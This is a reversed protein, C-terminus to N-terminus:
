RTYGQIYRRKACNGPLIPRRSSMQHLNGLAAFPRTRGNRKDAEMAHWWTVLATRNKVDHRKYVQHLHIKVTGESIGLANAIEKNSDGNVALCVFDSSPPGPVQQTAGFIQQNSGFRLEGQIAAM